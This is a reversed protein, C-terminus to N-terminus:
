NDGGDNFMVTSQLLLRRFSDNPTYSIDGLLYTNPNVYKASSEISRVLLFFRAGLVRREDWQQQTINEPAIFSDIIGDPILSTDLAFLIRIREVGRVIATDIMSDMLYLMHLEPIGDQVNIYYIHRKYEWVQRNPMATPTPRTETGKFFHLAHVTTAVYFRDSVLTTTDVISQGQTRKIDIIDSDPALTIGSALSICSLSSGKSGSNDVHVTWVSRLNGSVAPFSGIGRSDLCDNTSSLNNAASSLTVGSNLALPVGTYDGWFGAMRLDRLLLNMGIRGNEQLEGNDLSDQTTENSIVYLSMLGGFIFLGIVIAIMWEILTYGYNRKMSGDKGCVAPPDEWGNWM